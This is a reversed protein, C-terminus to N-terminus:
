SVSSVTVVIPRFICKYALAFSELTLVGVDGDKGDHASVAFSEVAASNGRFQLAPHGLTGQFRQARHAPIHLVFVLCPTKKRIQALPHFLERQREM